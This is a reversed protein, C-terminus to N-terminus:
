LYNVLIGCVPKYYLKEIQSITPRSLKLILALREQSIGSNERIKKLRYGLKKYIESM